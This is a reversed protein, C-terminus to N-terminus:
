NQANSNEKGNNQTKSAVAAELKSIIACAVEYTLDDIDAAGYVALRKSVLDSSLNLKAFLATLTSKQEPTIRSVHAAKRELEGKGFIKEFLEYSPAFEGTPLKSTRDKLNQAKFNGASDRYLRVITDFLYPLSKEGDFTEGIARMFGGDAYQTKERAVVIVNMDLAILKRIFEKFESKITQWDKVQLDYFEHKYGKSTKNRLLFIDSWKKQLADWFITIPDLVLTAYGHDHEALWNIAEIVEDANTTRLVDFEFKDGYLDTGGELDIAVPKPFQLALTTKGAGSPGWFFLKLRKEVTRAKKFPTAGKPKKSFDVRLIKESKEPQPTAPNPAPPTGSAAAPEGPLTVNTKNEM